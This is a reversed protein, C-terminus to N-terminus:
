VNPLIPVKDQEKGLYPGQKVEIIEADMLVELSHGGQALIAIDGESLTRVINSRSLYITLEIMGKQVILVEQTQYVTRARRPHFHPEVKYGKPHRMQAVQQPLHNPTLFEIGLKFEQRRIIIAVLGDSGDWSPSDSIHEILPPM